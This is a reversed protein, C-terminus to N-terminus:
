WQVEETEPTYAPATLVGAWFADDCVDPLRMFARWEALSEQRDYYDPHVDSSAAAM